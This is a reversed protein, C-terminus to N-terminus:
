FSYVSGLTRNLIYVPDGLFTEVELEMDEASRFGDLRVNNTKLCNHLQLYPLVSNDSFHFEDWLTAYDRLVTDSVMDKLRMSYYGPWRNHAWSKWMIPVFGM